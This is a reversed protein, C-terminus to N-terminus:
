TILNKKRRELFYSFATNLAGILCLFMAIRYSVTYHHYLDFLKGAFMPGFIGAFGWATFLLGYSTGLNEKGFYESILAPMVAFLSGYCFTVVAAGILLSGFHNFSDFFYFVISELCFIMFLTQYRGFKDSIVGAIPRGSANFIATCAVLIFGFNEGSQIAAIKSLHGIIMLGGMSGCLFLLWLRYFVPSLLLVRIPNNQKGSFIPVENKSENTDNSSTNTPPVLFQALITVIFLFLVGLLKFANALGITNLLKNALPAMYLTSLGFGAVVFGTVLGKREPPFWKIAIPTASAYGLGIGIGACMGFTISLGTPTLWFGSLLLGTGTLLGSLTAIRKAGLRDQLYGAPLMTLAFCLIAITYPFSAEASQWHYVDVLQKAFISWAYLVGFALNIGFGALVVAVGRSVTAHQKIKQNMM